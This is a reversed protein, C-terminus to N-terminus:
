EGGPRKFRSWVLQEAPLGERVSIEKGTVAQFGAADLAEGFSQKEAAAQFMEVLDYLSMVVIMDKSKHGILQPTGHGAQSLINDFRNRAARVTHRGVGVARLASVLATAAEQRNTSGVTQLAAVLRQDM